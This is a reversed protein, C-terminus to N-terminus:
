VEVQPGPLLRRDEEAPAAEGEEACQKWRVALLLRHSGAVPGGPTESDDISQTPM